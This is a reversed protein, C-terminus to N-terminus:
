DHSSSTQPYISKPGTSSDHTPKMNKSARHRKGSKSKARGLDFGWSTSSDKCPLLQGPSHTPDWDVKTLNPDELCQSCVLTEVELPVSSAGNQGNINAGASNQISPKNSLADRGPPSVPNGNVGNSADCVLVPSDNLNIKDGLPKMVMTTHAVIGNELLPSRDKKESGPALVEKSGDRRM